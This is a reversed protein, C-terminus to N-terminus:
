DAGAVVNAMFGQFDAVRAKDARYAINRGVRTQRVLGAKSLVLLHASMLSRQVGVRDAIDGANMGTDGARVLLSFTALRTPQALANMIVIASDSQMITLYDYVM